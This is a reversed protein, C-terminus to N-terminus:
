TTVIQLHAADRIKQPYKDKYITDIENREHGMLERIIDEEIHLNKARNAFTYRAVKIGLNENKPQVKIGTKKQIVTLNKQYRRRINEFGKFDKRGPFVFGDEPKYKNLLQQAKDIISLDFEYGREGIKKREFYVRNNKLQDTRLHYVDIFDQGGFYFQLLFLDLTFQQGPPLGECNELTKISDISLYKKKTRNKRVTIGKFVNKFPQLDETLGILVGENYIARLTRLYNHVTSNKAGGELKHNKFDRLTNYNIDEFNLQPKLKKLQGTVNEYIQANAYKGRAKLDAILGNAFQYFDKTIRKKPQIIHIYEDANVVQQFQLQKIQHRYNMLLPYVFEYDAAAPLPTETEFNWEEKKFYWGINLRKRFNFERLYLVVPFGQKTELNCYLKIEAKM